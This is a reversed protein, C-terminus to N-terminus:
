GAVLGVQKGTNCYHSSGRSIGVARVIAARAGPVAAVVQILPHRERMTAM